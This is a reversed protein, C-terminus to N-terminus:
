TAFVKPLFDIPISNCSSYILIPSRRNPNAVSYLPTGNSAKCFTYLGVTDVSM